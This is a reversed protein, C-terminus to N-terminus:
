SIDRALSSEKSESNPSNSTQDLDQAKLCPFTNKATYPHFKLGAQTVKEQASAHLIYVWM